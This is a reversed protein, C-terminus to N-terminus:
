PGLLKWLMTVVEARTCTKNPSFSNPGTGATIGQEAAWLVAKYYYVGHAVDAFPMDMSEPGPRGAMVWLFTVIEARTCPKSPSFQTASTGATINRELAWLM